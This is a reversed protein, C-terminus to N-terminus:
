QRGLIAHVRRAPGTLILETVDAPVPLPPTLPMRLVVDRYGWQDLEEAIGAVHWGGAGDRIWWSFGTGWHARARVHGTAVAHLVSEGGASALGTVAFRAGDIAPLSLACPSFEAGDQAQAPELASAWRDPLSGAARASIGHRPRGLRECLAALQGPTGSDAAILGAGRLVDTLEGLLGDAFPGRSDWTGALIHEAAIALLREGPNAAHTTVTTAAPAPPSTLDLRALRRAGDAVVDLWRVVAPSPLVEVVGHWTDGSAPADGHFRLQYPRGSEDAAGLARFPLRHPGTGLGDDPWHGRGHGRLAATIVARGPLCALTLLHLAFDDGTVDAGVPIARPPTTDHTTDDEAHPPNSLRRVGRALGAADAGSRALLALEFGSTVAAMQQHTLAGAVVLIEGARHM